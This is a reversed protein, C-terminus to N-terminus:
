HNYIFLYFTKEGGKFEKIQDFVSLFFIASVDSQCKINDATIQYFVEAGDTVMTALIM